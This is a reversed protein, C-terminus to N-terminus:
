ELTKYIGLHGPDIKALLTYIKKREAEPFVIASQAIENAKADFFLHMAAVDSSKKHVEELGRISQLMNKMAQRPTTVMKDLGERHYNYLARRLEKYALLDEVIWYRNINNESASWGGEAAQQQQLVIRQANKLAKSGSLEAFSDADLAIILYAYYAAVAVLDNNKGGAIYQLPENPLFTFAVQKDRHNLLPTTYTANFVPRGAQVQVNAKYSNEGSKEDLTLIFDCAIKDQEEVKKDTWVTTNLIETLTRELDIFVTNDVGTIKQSIVKVSCNLEQAGGQKVFLFVYTLTLLIKLSVLRM